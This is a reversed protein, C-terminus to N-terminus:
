NLLYNQKVKKASEVEMIWITIQTQLDYEKFLVIM